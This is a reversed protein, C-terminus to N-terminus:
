ESAGREIREALREAEARLAKMDKMDIIGIGAQASLFISMIAFQLSRM